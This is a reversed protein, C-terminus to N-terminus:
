NCVGQRNIAFSNDLMEDVSNLEGGRGGDAAAECGQVSGAVEM